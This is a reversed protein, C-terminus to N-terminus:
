KVMMMKQTKVYNGAVMRFFYMGSAFRSGNFVVSYSGAAQNQNVLTAVERGTVDYVTITVHSEKPVDYQITTTPNFPNPYNQYLAFVKPIGNPADIADVGTGTTFSGVASYGSAGGPNSASVRWFYDTSPQLVISLQVSTDTVTTDIVTTRFMNDSSVEVSYNTATMSSNWTLTVRRTVHASQFPTLLHPRLPAAVITMFSDIGSFPSAGGINYALVRWYYKM